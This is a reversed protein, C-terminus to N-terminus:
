NEESQNSLAAEPPIPVPVFLPDTRPTNGLQFRYLEETALAIKTVCNKLHLPYIYYTDDLTSLDICDGRQDYQYEIHCSYMSVPTKVLHLPEAGASGPVDLMFGRNDHTLRGLGINIYGRANPLSDVDVDDSISYTGQEVQQRVQARQFEFWDPAYSFETNGSSAELEGTPQLNWRKGCHGCWIRNGGSDMKFETLCAPCQYLVRHLGSANAPHHIKIKNATQWRYEDYVFAQRIRQNIDDVSLRSVDEGTLIRTFDAALPVKRKSLNWCPSHLYNGHMNLVAVPVKLFRVLKGLSDPLVATTGILSYRAEPYLALIDGNKIVQRIQKILTIDNTFKRKCIGGVHRLLWERGIFGDIAVVYNARHPFIAATTVKFDIFSMHTCLLLYPPKLDQVDHRNIKLHYRWVDPFSFLWTLPRLYWSQRMPLRAMDFKVPTTNKDM